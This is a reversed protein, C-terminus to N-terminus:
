TNEDTILKELGRDRLNKLLLFGFGVLEGKTDESHHLLGRAKLNLEAAKLRTSHDVLPKSYKIRGADNFVKVIKAEHAKSIVVASKDMTAQARDLALAISNVVQPERAMKSAINDTSASDRAGAALAAQRQTSGALIAKTFKSLKIKKSNTTKAM